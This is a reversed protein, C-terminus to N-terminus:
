EEMRPSYDSKVFQGSANGIIQLRGNMPQDPRSLEPGMDCLKLFM